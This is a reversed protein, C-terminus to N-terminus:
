LSSEGVCCGLDSRSTPLSRHTLTRGFHRGTSKEGERFPKLTMRFRGMAVLSERGIEFIGSEGNAPERARLSAPHTWARPSDEASPSCRARLLLGRALMGRLPIAVQETEDARWAREGWPKRQRSRAIAQPRRRCCLRLVMLPLIKRSLRRPRGPRLRAAAAFRKIEMHVAECLHGAELQYAKAISVVARISVRISGCESANTTLAAIRAKPTSPKM